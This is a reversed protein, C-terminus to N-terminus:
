RVVYAVLLGTVVAAIAFVRVMQGVPWTQAAPEPPQSSSYAQVKRVKECQRDLSIDIMPDTHNM